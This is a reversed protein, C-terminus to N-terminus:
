KFRIMMVRNRIKKKEKENQKDYLLLLITSFIVLTNSDRPYFNLYFQFYDSVSAIFHVNLRTIFASPSPYYVRKNNTYDLKSGIIRLLM